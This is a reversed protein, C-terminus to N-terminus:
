RGAQPQPQQRGGTGKAQSVRVAERGEEAEEKEELHQNFFLCSLSQGKQRTTPEKGTMPVAKKEERKEKPPDCVLQPPQESAM